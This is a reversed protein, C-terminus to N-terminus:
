FMSETNLYQKKKLSFYSSAVYCAYGYRTIIYGLLSLPKITTIKSNIREYIV